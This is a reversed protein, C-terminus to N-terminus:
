EISRLIEERFSTRRRVMSHIESNKREFIYIAGSKNTQGQILRDDFDVRAPGRRTGMLEGGGSDGGGPTEAAPAPAPAPTEEAPPAPQEAKKKGKGKKAAKKAIRLENRQSGSGIVTDRQGLSVAAFSPAALGLVLCGVAFNLLLTGRM